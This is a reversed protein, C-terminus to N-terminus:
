CQSSVRPYHAIGKSEAKKFLSFAKFKLQLIMTPEIQIQAVDKFDYNSKGLGNHTSDAHELQLYFM